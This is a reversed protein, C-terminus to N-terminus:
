RRLSQIDVRLNSVVSRTYGRTREDLLMGSFTEEDNLTTIGGNTIECREVFDSHICASRM